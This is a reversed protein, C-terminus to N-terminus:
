TSVPQSCQAELSQVLARAEALKAEMPLNPWTVESEIARIVTAETVGSALATQIATQVALNINVTVQQGSELEGTVKGLLEVIKVLQGIAQLATRLDKEQEALAGIRRADAELGQVKALLTDAHAVVEVGHAAVLSAALHQRHRFLADESVGYTRAVARLTEKGDVLEADIKPQDKRGCISCKRPM